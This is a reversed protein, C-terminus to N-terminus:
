RGAPYRLKALWGVPAAPDLGIKKAQAKAKEIQMVNDIRAALFADTAAEDDSNDALWRATTSMLVGSLIARKSYFNFDTSTDGLGRWIADASAWVLRTALPAMPPTALLAAGRRFAEKDDRLIDLRARVAGAVKDRIRQESFGPAAMAAVMKEDILASWYRLLDRIGGPFAAKAAAADVGAAAAADALMRATWGDFPALALAHDLIASREREFGDSNPIQEANEM